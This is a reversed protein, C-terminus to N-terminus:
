IVKYVVLHQKMSRHCSFQPAWEPLPVPVASGHLHPLAM